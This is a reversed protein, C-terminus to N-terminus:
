PKDTNPYQLIPEKCFVKNLPEFAAQCQPSWQFKTDKKLPKYLYKTINDFLPLFERYYGSPGLFHYLKDINSPEKLKEIATVKEWLLQIGQESIIHARYQSHIKFFQCKSLKIKLM